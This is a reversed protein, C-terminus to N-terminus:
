FIVFSENVQWSAHGTIRASNHLYDWNNFELTGDALLDCTIFVCHSYRDLYVPLIFRRISYGWESSYGDLCKSNEFVKVRVGDLSARNFVAVFRIRVLNGKREMRAEGVRVSGDDSYVDGNRFDRIVSNDVVALNCEADAVVINSYVPNGNGNELVISMAPSLVPENSEGRQLLFSLIEALTESRGSYGQHDPMNRIQEIKEVVVDNM